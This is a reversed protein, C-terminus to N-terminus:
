REGVRRRFARAEAELAGLAAQLRGATEREEEGEPAALPEGYWVRVAAPWPLWHQPPWARFSGDIYVPVIPVGARRAFLAAGPRVRGLRGDRSRTGEPFVMLSAGSRLLGIARRTAGLDAQDRDVPFAHVKRILWGFPGVFLSRRAMFHVARELAIGALVPDLYSQHNCAFLAPGAPVRELRRARFRFMAACVVRGLLRCFRYLADDV